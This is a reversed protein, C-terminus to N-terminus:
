ATKKTLRSLKKRLNEFNIEVRYMVALEQAVQQYTLGYMFHLVIAHLMVMDYNVAELLKIASRVVETDTLSPEPGASQHTAQRQEADWQEYSSAAELASMSCRFANEYVVRHTGSDNSETKLLESVM